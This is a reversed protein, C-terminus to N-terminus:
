FSARRALFTIRVRGCAAAGSLHRITENLQNLPNPIYVLKTGDPSAPLQGTRVKGDPPTYDGVLFSQISKHM